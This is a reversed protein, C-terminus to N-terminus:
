SPAVPWSIEQPFGSQDSIDRLAQRYVTWAERVGASLPSDALQTWDSEVLLADRKARAAAAIDEESPPPTYDEEVEQSDVAGVADALTEAGIGPAGHTVVERGDRQYAIHAAPLDPTLELDFDYDENYDTAQM